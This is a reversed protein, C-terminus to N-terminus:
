LGVRLSFAMSVIESHISFSLLQGTAIVVMVFPNRERLDPAFLGM